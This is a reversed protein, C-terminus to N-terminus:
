SDKVQECKRPTKLADKKSSRFRNGHFLHKDENVEMAGDIENVEVVMGGNIEGWLPAHYAPWAIMSIFFIVSLDSLPKPIPPHSCVHPSYTSLFKMPVLKKM